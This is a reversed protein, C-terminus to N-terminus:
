TSLYQYAFFAFVLPVLTTASPLITNGRRLKHIRSYKPLRHTIAPGQRCKLVRRVLDIFSGDTVPTCDKLDRIVTIVTFFGLM